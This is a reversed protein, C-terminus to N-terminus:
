NFLNMVIEISARDDPIAVLTYEKDAFVLDLCTSSKRKGDVIQVLPRRCSQNVIAHM